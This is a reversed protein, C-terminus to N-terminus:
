LRQYVCKSTGAEVYKESVQGFVTYEGNLHAQGTCFKASCVGRDCVSCSARKGALNAADCMRV